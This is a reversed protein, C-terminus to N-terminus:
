NLKDNCLIARIEDPADNCWVSESFQETIRAM